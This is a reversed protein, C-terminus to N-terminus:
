NIEPYFSAQDPDKYYKWYENSEDLVEISNVIYPCEESFDGDEDDNYEDSFLELQTEIMWNEALTEAEDPSSANVIVFLQGGCWHANEYDIIYKTM